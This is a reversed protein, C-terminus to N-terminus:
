RIVRRVLPEDEIKVTTLNISHLIYDNFATLYKKDQCYITLMTDGAHVYDGTKVQVKIATSNDNTLKCVISVIEGLNDIDINYVYGNKTAKFAISKQPTFVRNNEIASVDGHQYKVIQLFKNYAEGTDLVANIMDLLDQKSIHKNASRIMEYAQMVAMDRLLCKKGRLVDIAEAVEIANGIGEGVTHLTRTIFIICKIHNKRFIYKLNSALKLASEYTQVYSAVGYKIDVLVTNAGSALKKCAISSALLKLNNQLSYKERIEHMLRDAPCIDGNNSLVCANTEDLARKIEEDTLLTNFNPISKFRDASGNAYIMSKGTTKIMKYGLSAIIPILIMSSGDGVGGTSHKEFVFQNYNIVRGSDRLASALYLTEKNTMGFSDLSLFFKIITKDKGNKMLYDVAEYYEARNLTHGHVKKDIIENIM